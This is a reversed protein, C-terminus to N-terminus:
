FHLLINLLFVLLVPSKLSRNSHLYSRREDQIFMGTSLPARIALHSCNTGIGPRKLIKREFLRESMRHVATGLCVESRSFFFADRIKRMEETMRVQMETACRHRSASVKSM